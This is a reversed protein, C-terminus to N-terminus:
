SALFNQYKRKFPSTHEAFGQARLFAIFELTQQTEIEIGSHDSCMIQTIIGSGVYTV